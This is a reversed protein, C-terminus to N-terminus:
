NKKTCTKLPGSMPTTPKATKAIADLCGGVFAAIEEQTLGAARAEPVNLAMLAKTKAAQSAKLWAGTTQGLLNGSQANAAEALAQLSVLLILMRMM